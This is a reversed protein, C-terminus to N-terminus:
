EGGAGFEISASFDVLAKKQAAVLAAPGTLKLYWLNGARVAQVVIMRKGSPAPEGEGGFDWLTGKVDGLAITEGAAAAMDKVPGLGIQSRWRNINAEPTGAQEGPLMSVVAEGEGGDGQVRFTAVRMPRPEPDLTWGAPTRYSKLGPPADGGPPRGGGEFSISRLFANYEAAHAAVKSEPGVFKLFWVKGPVPIIAALMRVGETEGEPAPGHIDVASINLGNSQIRTVVKGLDAEATPKAGIQGEWRNVNPLLAGSEPGFNYVVVQLKPDAADVQFTAFRMDQDGLKKWGAPVVWKPAAAAPEHTHGGGGRSLPSPAEKPARYVRPENSDGCGAAALVAAALLPASMRPPRLPM